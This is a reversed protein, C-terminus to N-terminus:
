TTAIKLVFLLYILAFMWGEWVSMRKDQALLYFLLGTAAMVPLSFSLLVTPVLISGFASAVAPIVLTNFVCSGLVNGIAMEAKGQKIASINVVLEPLTTGLSLVTLAVISPPISLKLAINSISLVTYDAGFYIGVAALLLIVLAKVPFALKTPASTQPTSTGGKILYIAYVVFIVIGIFSELFDINGDYGIMCFVFFSGILFHLDIYIYASQLEVSRRNLAISMGTVLLINSINAGIINGPVIDSAGKTVALVGSILEPLSTGIGVIFVGIVFAPLRLWTGITEAAATFYNASVLLVALALVFTLTDLFM